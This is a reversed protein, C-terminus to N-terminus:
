CENNCGPYMIVGGQECRPWGMKCDCGHFNTVGSADVVGYVQNIGVGIGSGPWPGGTADPPLGPIQDNIYLPKDTIDDATSCHALKIRLVQSESYTADCGSLCEIVTAMLSVGDSLTDGRDAYTSFNTSVDM